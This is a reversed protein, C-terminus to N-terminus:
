LLFLHNTRSSLCIWLLLAVRRQRPTDIVVPFLQAHPHYNEPKKLLSYLLVTAKQSSLKSYLWSLLIDPMLCTMVDRLPSWSFTEMSLLSQLEILKRVKGFLMSNTGEQKWIQHVMMWAIVLGKEGECAKQFIKWYKINLSFNQNKFSRNRKFLLFYLIKTIQFSVSIRTVPVTRTRNKYVLIWFINENKRKIDKKSFNM